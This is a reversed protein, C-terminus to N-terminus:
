GGFRFKPRLKSILLICNNGVTAEAAAHESASTMSNNIKNHSGTITAKQFNPGRKTTCSMTDKCTKCDDQQPLSSAAKRLNDEQHSTVNLTRRHKVMIVHIPRCHTITANGSWVWKKDKFWLCIIYKSLAPYCHNTLNVNSLSFWFFHFKNSHWRHMLYESILEQSPDKGPTWQENQTM